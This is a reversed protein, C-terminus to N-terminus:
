MSMCTTHSSGSRLRSSATQRLVNQILSFASRTSTFFSLATASLASEMFSSISVFASSNTTYVSGRGRWPCRPKPSRPGAQIKAPVVRHARRAQPAARGPRDSRVLSRAVPPGVAGESNGRARSGCATDSRAARTKACGVSGRTICAARGGVPRPQTAKSAAADAM